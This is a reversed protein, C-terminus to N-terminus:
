SLLPTEAEGSTYRRIMEAQIRDLVEHVKKRLGSLNKEQAAITEISERIEDESMKSVRALSTEGVLEEVRRRDVEAARPTSFDPPRPPLPAAGSAPNEDALIQPLRSILDGEVRGARRDLEASLIDIRGQCLRREFSLENEVHTCEDRMAHLDDTSRDSLGDLYSPDTVKESLRRKLETM